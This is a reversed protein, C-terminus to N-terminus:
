EKGPAPPLRLEALVPLQLQNVQWREVVVDRRIELLIPLLLALVLAIAAGAGLIVPKKPKVPTGPVDVPLTVQYRRSFAAQATDLALKAGRIEDRLSGYRVVAGSIQAALAPDADKEDLLGLIETPLEAASAEAGAGAASSGTSTITSTSTSATRQMAERQRIQAELDAVESRALALESSVQSAMAVREQQTIVQPHSPTFKLTLEELKSQESRIRGSRDNEAAALAQKKNLLRERLEPLQEDTAAKRTTIRVQRPATTTAVPKGGSTKAAAKAEEALEARRKAISERMQLALSSIESRSEVAHADLIAMKDQFASMETTHRIRLFNERAAQAIEAATKGDSWEVDITLTDKEVSVKLKTGLTGILVATLTKDDMPGFVSAFIRDKLALLPPRRAVFSKRLNIDNILRELADHSMIIGSAGALPQDGSASDLVGSSVTMMETRCLYTKPLYEAVAYTIALGLVTVFGVLFKHKRIANKAFTLYSLVVDLNIPVSSGGQGDDDEHQDPATEM